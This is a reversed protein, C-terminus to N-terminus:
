IVRVKKQCSIGSEMELIGNETVWSGKPVGTEVVHFHTLLDVHSHRIDDLGVVPSLDAVKLAM